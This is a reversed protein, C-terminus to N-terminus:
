RHETGIIEATVTGTSASPAVDTRSTAASQTSALAAESVLTRQLDGISIPKVMHLDFGVSEARQSDEPQGYGTMAILRPGAREYRARVQKAVEYGALEPLGIDIIAVDPRLKLILALGTM